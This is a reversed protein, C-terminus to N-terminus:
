HGYARGHRSVGDQGAVRVQVDDGLQWAERALRAACKLAEVRTPFRGAKCGSHEVSWAPGNPVVSYDRSSV